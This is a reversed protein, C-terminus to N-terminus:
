DEGPIALPLHDDDGRSYGLAPSFRNARISGTVAPDGPHQAAYRARAREAVVEGPIAAPQCIHRGSAHRMLDVHIHNYHYVNAGPALVTTFEKCAASQVDHLFGQEEPTGRWGYQVSIKHGDALVFEAIDLANGFAHESIHASPDGNMGRCSYASIQKIEVVPQRFWRLAAPQVEVTIWQDLASVIPCALTAAPRVQVPGIAGTVPPGRPPGLPAQDEAGPSPQEERAWDDPPPENAPPPPYAQPVRYSAQPYPSPYRAPPLADARAAQVGGAQAGGYPQPPSPQFDTGDPEPIPVGPAYISMPAGAPAAAASQPQPYQPRSYQPQAYSPQGFPRQVYPPAGYPTTAPPPTAANPQVIPWQQPLAGDPIAGPPRVPEDDYGLPAGEGLASIRLPYDAGCIGPGNIASIRVRDPGERVAGSNLCAVEAEGRWAEREGYFYQTSCGALAILGAVILSGLLSWAVSRSM